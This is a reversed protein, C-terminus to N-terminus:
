LCFRMSQPLMLVGRCDNVNRICESFCEENMKSVDVTKRLRDPFDQLFLPLRPQQMGSEGQKPRSNTLVGEFIKVFRPDQLLLMFHELGREHPRKDASCCERLVKQMQLSVLMEIQAQPSSQTTVVQEPHQLSDGKEALTASSMGNMLSALVTTHSSLYELAAEAGSLTRFEVTGAGHHVTVRFLQGFPTFFRKIDTETADPPFGCFVLTSHDLVIPQATRSEDASTLIASTPSRDAPARWNSVDRSAVGVKLPLQKTGILIGNMQQLALEAEHGDLFHVFGFRKSLGKYGPTPHTERCVRAAIVSSFRRTFAELLESDALHPDLNGCYISRGRQGTGIDMGYLAHEVKLRHGEATVLPHDQHDYVVRSADERSHFKIFAYRCKEDLGDERVVVPPVKVLEVVGVSSFTEFLYTTDMWPQLPGVWVTRGDMSGPIVRALVHSAQVRVLLSFCAPCL